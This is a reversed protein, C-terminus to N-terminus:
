DKASPIARRSKRSCWSLVLFILIAYYIENAAIAIRLVRSVDGVFSGSPALHLGLIFGPSVGYRVFDPEGVYDGIALSLVALPAALIISLVTRFKM